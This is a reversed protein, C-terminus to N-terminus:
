QHKEEKLDLVEIGSRKVRTISSRSSRKCRSAM